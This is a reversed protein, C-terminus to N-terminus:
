YRGVLVALGSRPHTKAATARAFAVLQDRTYVVCGASRTKTCLATRTAEDADNEDIANVQYTGDALKRAVAYETIGKTSYSQVIADNGEFEHSTFGALNSLRWRPVVYRSGNWRFTVVEPRHAGKEDLNYLHVQVREGFIPKADGLLPAGSQICGALTAACLTVLVGKILQPLKEFVLAIRINM